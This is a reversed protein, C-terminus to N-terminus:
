VHIKKGDEICSHFGVEVVHKASRISRLAFSPNLGVKSSWLSDHPFYKAKLSTALLSNPFCHLRWFQKALLSMNFNELDRFGLGGEGKSRYVKESGAM